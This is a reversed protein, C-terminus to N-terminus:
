SATILLADSALRTIKVPAKNTPAATLRAYVAFDNAVARAFPVNRRAFGDAGIEIREMFHMSHPGPTKVNDWALELDVVDGPSGQAYVHETFQYEGAKGVLNSAKSSSAGADTHLWTASGPALDVGIPVTEQGNKKTRLAKADDRFYHKVKLEKPKTSPGSGGSAPAPNAFDISAGLITETWGLYPRGIQRQREDITCVGVVGYRPYDTAVVRGNGLSIVVDGASSSAKTGFWVPVGAPPNRDGEHKGPTDKWAAYATPWNGNARAGHAKYAQWVYHLCMGPMINRFGLLTQAAARGNVGM